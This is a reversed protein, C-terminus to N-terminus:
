GNGICQHAPGDWQSRARCTQGHKEAWLRTWLYQATTVTPILILAATVSAFSTEALFRWNWSSFRV